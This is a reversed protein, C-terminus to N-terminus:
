EANEVAAALAGNLTAPPPVYHAAAEHAASANRDLERLRVLKEKAERALRESHAVEKRLEAAEHRYGKQEPLVHM